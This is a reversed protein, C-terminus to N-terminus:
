FNIRLFYSYKQLFWISLNWKIKRIEAGEGWSNRWEKEKTDTELAGSHKSPKQPFVSNQFKYVDKPCELWSLFPQIHIKELLFGFLVSKVHCVFPRGSPWIKPASHLHILFMWSSKKGWFVCFFSFFLNRMGFTIQIKNFQFCNHLTHPSDSSWLLCNSGM